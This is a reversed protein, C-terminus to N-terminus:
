STPAVVSYGFVIIRVQGTAAAPNVNPTIRVSQAAANYYAGAATGKDTSNAATSVAATSFTTGSTAGTVTFTAATPIVTVVRVAVATVVVAAGITTATDTSPAAAITLLEAFVVGHSEYAGSSGSIRLSAAGSSSGALLIVGAAARTLILDAADNTAQALATNNWRLDTTSSLTLGYQSGSGSILRLRIAGGIAVDIGGNSSTSNLLGRNTNNIFALSPTSVSGDLSLLGGANSLTLRTDLTTNGTPATAGLAADAVNDTATTATNNAITSQLLWPGTVANGAATRYIKRSTVGSFSSVPIGTLAVQGDVTKDAVTVTNSVTGADTEGTATVFTVKYSHTGNDVNGAGAGALAGTLAGPPTTNMLINFNESTDFTLRAKYGETNFIDFASVVTGSSKAIRM